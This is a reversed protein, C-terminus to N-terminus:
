PTTRRISICTERSMYMLAWVNAHHIYKNGDGGLVAVKKVKADSKGVMRAGNAEM